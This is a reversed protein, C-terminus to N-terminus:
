ELELFQMEPTLGRSVARESIEDMLIGLSDIEEKIEQELFLSVLTNLYEKEKETAEQYAEAVKASVKVTIEQSSQMM